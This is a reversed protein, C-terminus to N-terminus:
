TLPKGATARIGALLLDLGRHFQEDDDHHRLTEAVRITWPYAATDMQAMSDALGGLHADREPGPPATAARPVTVLAVGLVYSVLASAAQFSDHDDLGLNSLLQGLYEWLALTMPGRRPASSILAPVWPHRGFVGYLMRCATEAEALWDGGEGRAARALPSEPLGSVFERAAHEVALLLLEEKSDVYWYLSTVGVGLSAALARITLAEPGREDLLAVAASVVSDSTLNTRAM